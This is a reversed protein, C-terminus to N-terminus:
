NIIWTSADEQEQEAARRDEEQQWIFCLEEVTLCGRIQSDRLDLEAWIDPFAAQLRQKNESDARRMAAQILGYFPVDQGELQRGIQYEHLSM